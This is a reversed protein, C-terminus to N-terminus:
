RHLRVPRSPRCVPRYYRHHGYYGWGFGVGYTVSPAPRAVDIALDDQNPDLPPLSSQVLSRELEQEPYRLRIETGTREFDDHVIVKLNGENDRGPYFDGIYVAVGPRADLTIRDATPRFEGFRQVVYTGSPLAVLFAEHSPRVAYTQGDDARTLYLTPQVVTGGFALRGALLAQPGSASQDEPLDRVTTTCATLLCLFAACRM